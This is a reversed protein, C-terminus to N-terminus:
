LYWSGILLTVAAIGIGVYHLMSWHLIKEGDLPHVPILNFVALIANIFVVLSATFAVIGGLFSFPLFVLAIIVNVAPGAFAIKGAQAKTPYGSIMVAGPAAILFGFLSTIIALLLGQMSMRFESLLGYSQAVFKHGMEHLFFGTLVAIFSPGLYTLFDDRGLVMTFAFTLVAISIVLEKIEQRTFNFMGRGAPGSGPYIFAPGPQAFPDHYPRYHIEMEYFPDRNDRSPGYSGIPRSKEM